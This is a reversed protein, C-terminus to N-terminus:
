LDKNDVQHWILIWFFSGDSKKQTEFQSFVLYSTLQSFKQSSSDDYKLYIELFFLFVRRHASIIIFINNWVSVFVLESDSYFLCFFLSFKFCLSICCGHGNITFIMKEWHSDFMRCQRVDDSNSYTHSQISSRSM